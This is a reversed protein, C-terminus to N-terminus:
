SQVVLATLTWYSELECASCLLAYASTSPHSRGADPHLVGPGAGRVKCLRSSAQKTIPISGQSSILGAGFYM